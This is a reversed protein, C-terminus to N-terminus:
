GNRKKLDEVACVVRAPSGYAVMRPPISKTVVGGAGILAGEGVRVGPLLTANAGIVCGKMLTPGALRKNPGAFRAYKDNAVIVGPALFVDDQVTTFQAVYCNCHIKVDNGIECGYDVISNTWIRLGSGIRCQERIVVNNGTELRAGISSGAYIISGRRVLADEGIVLTKDEIQRSPIEGIVVGEELKPSGRFRVWSPFNGDAM